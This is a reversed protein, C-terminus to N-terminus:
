TGYLRRHVYRRTSSISWNWHIASEITARPCDKLLSMDDDGGGPLPGNSLPPLNKNVEDKLALMIYPECESINKLMYTTAPIMTQFNAM